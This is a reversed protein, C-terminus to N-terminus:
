GEQAWKRIDAELEEPTIGAASACHIANVVFKRLTILLLERNLPAGHDMAEVVTAAAGANKQLHVIAHRLNFLKREGKAMDALPPYVVETCVFKVTAIAQIEELDM